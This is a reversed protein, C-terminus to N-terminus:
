DLVGEPLEDVVGEPLEIDGSVWSKLFSEFIKAPDDDPFEEKHNDYYDIVDEAYYDVVDESIQIDADNFAQTVGATIAETRAEREEETLESVNDPTNNKLVDAVDTVLGTYKPDLEDLDAVIYNSIAEMTMDKIKDVLPKTRLNSELVEVSRKIANSEGLVNVLSLRGESFKEFVGEDALVYLLQAVTKIDESFYTANQTDDNLIELASDVLSGIPEGIDPAAFGMFPEDNSWAETLNHVLERTLSPLVISKEADTFKDVIEVVLKAYEETYGDEYVNSGALKLLSCAADAICDVETTLKSMRGNDSSVSTLARCMANGGCARYVGLLKSDNFDRIKGLTEGEAEVGIYYQSERDFMGNDEMNDLLIVSLELYCSLPLIFVAVVICAQVAGILASFIPRRKGKGGGIRLIITLLLYVVWTVILFAIFIILFFIPLCMSCILGEIVATNQPFLSTLESYQTQIDPYSASLAPLLKQEITSQFSDKLAFSMAFAGVASIIVTILRVGSKWARRFLSFFASLAIYALVLAVVVTQLASNGFFDQIVSILDSM